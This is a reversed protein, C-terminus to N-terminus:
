FPLDGEEPAADQKADTARTSTPGYIELSIRFGRQWITLTWPVDDHDKGEARQFTSRRLTLRGHPTKHEEGLQIRLDFEDERFLSKGVSVLGGSFHVIAARGEEGAPSAFVSVEVYGGCANHQLEWLVDDFTMDATSCM